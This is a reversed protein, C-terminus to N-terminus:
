EWLLDRLAKIRALVLRNKKEISSAADRQKLWERQAAKVKEFDTKPVIFRVAAYVENLQRDYDNARDLETAFQVADNGTDVYADSLSDFMEGTISRADTVTWRAAGPDYTGQFLAYYSRVDDLSKPNSTSISRFRIKGDKGFRVYVTAPGGPNEVHDKTAEKATATDLARQIATGLDVQRFSHGDLEVLLITDFGFRGDRTVVCRNANWVASLHAHNQREFYDIAELTGLIRHSRIDVLYCNADENTEPEHPPVLIGYQGDPSETGSHVVFGTPWEAAIASIALGFFLAYVPSAARGIASSVGIAPTLGLRSVGRNQM